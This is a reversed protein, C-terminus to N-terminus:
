RPSREPDIAEFEGTEPDVVPFSGTELEEVVGRDVAGEEPAPKGAARRLM